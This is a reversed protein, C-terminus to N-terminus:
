SYRLYLGNGEGRVDEELIREYTYEDGACGGGGEHPAQIVFTKSASGAYYERDTANEGGRVVVDTALVENAYVALVLMALVVAVIINDAFALMSQSLSSKRM